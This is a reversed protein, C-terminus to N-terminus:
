IGSQILESSAIIPQGVSLLYVVGGIWTLLIM